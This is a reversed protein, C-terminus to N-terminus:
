NVRRELGRWYSERLKRKLIKGAPNRPLESVLDVSKPKKYGALRGTCHDLVSEATLTRGPKPVVLAKAAEGWREDPVGIVAVEAVDPHSELVIEIERPYINVGGSIIMDKVRDVIYCYGDQDLYGIDGLTLWGDRFAENTAGEDQWYGQCLSPGQILLVGPENPPLDAGTVPDVVRVAMAGITTGASGIKERQYGPRLNTVVGTETAGYFEHVVDGFWDLLELKTKALFPSGGAILARLAPFTVGHSRASELLRSQLVPAMFSNTIAEVAMVALVEDPQFAKLTVVTGGLILHLLAFTLPATHYLPGAALHRDGAGVQFEAAWLMAAWMRNRHTVMAGKPRGTTGSTYGLYLLDDPAVRTAPPTPSGGVALGDAPVVYGEPLGAERGAAQALDRYEPSHAILRIGANGIIYAMEAPVLHTNLPVVVLGAQASALLTSLFDVGNSCLIGVREGAALGYRGLLVSARRYSDEALEQYTVRRQGDVIATHRPFRRAANTFGAGITLQNM